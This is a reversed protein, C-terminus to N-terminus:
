YELIQQVLYNKKSLSYQYYKHVLTTYFCSFLFFFYKSTKPPIFTQIKVTNKPYALIGIFRLKEMHYEM